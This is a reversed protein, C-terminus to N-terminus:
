EFLDPADDTDEEDDSSEDTGIGFQELTANTLVDEETVDVLSETLEDIYSDSINDPEIGLNTALNQRLGDAIQKRTEEITDEDDSKVSNGILDAIQGSINEGEDEERFRSLLPTQRDLIPLINDDGPM